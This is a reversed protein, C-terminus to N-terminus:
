GSLRPFFCVKIFAKLFPGAFWTAFWRYNKSISFDFDRIKVDVDKVTFFTEADGEDANELTVDFDIGDPGFKFDLLGYDEFPWFGTKKNVWFAINSAEFHLGQIRFRVSSDYESAYTAYGQTFRLDNHAVFRISDPIFSASEFNFDDIVLDVDESKFEIRPVPIEKILGIVRPVIVDMFDRYLGQGEARLAGFGIQGATALSDGLEQISDVLQNTTEDNQVGDILGQLQNQLEQADRKWDANEKLLAQADDFLSSAKRAASRSAVYGPQYLLRHIYSELDNFYLSLKENNKVDEAAQQDAIILPM